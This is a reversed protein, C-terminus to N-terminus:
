GHVNGGSRMVEGALQDVAGLFATPGKRSVAVQPCPRTNLITSLM